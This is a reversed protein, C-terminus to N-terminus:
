LTFLSQVHHIIIMDSKDNLLQRMGDAFKMDTGEEPWEAGLCQLPDISQWDAARAGRGTSAEYGSAMASLLNTEFM